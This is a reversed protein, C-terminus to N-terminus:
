PAPFLEARRPYLTLGFGVELLKMDERLSPGEQLLPFLLGLKYLQQSSQLDRWLQEPTLCPLSFFSSTISCTPAIPLLLSQPM